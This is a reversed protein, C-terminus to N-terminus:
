VMFRQNVNVLLNHESLFKRGILMSHRMTGRNSLTVHGSFVHSGLQLHVDIVFREESIGNSSTVKRRSYSDTEYIHSRDDFPSYRLISKRNSHKIEEIYPCHITSSYAGSDVKAIVTGLEPMEQIRVKEKRGVMTPRPITHVQIDKMQAMYRKIKEM